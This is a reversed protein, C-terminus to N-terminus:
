ASTRAPQPADQSREPSVRQWHYDRMRERAAARQALSIQRRRRPHMIAAVTEFDAVDFLFTQGSDGNRYLECVGSAALRRATIPRGEVEAALTTEGWPVVLGRECAIQMYWPDLKDRPVHRADYAQDFVIKFQDGFLKLLNICPAEHM